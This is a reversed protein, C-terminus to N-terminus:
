IKETLSVMLMVLWGVWLIPIGQSMYYNFNYNCLHVCNDITEICSTINEIDTGIVIYSFIMLVWFSIMVFKNM